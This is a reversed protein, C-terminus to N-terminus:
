LALVTKNNLADTAARGCIQLQANNPSYGQLQTLLAAVDTAKPCQRKTVAVRPNETNARTTVRVYTDIAEIVIGELRYKM